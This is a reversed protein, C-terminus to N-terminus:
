LEGLQNAAKLQRRKFLIYSKRRAFAFFYDKQSLLIRAPFSADTRKIDSEYQRLKSQAFLISLLYVCIRKRIIGTLPALYPVERRQDRENVPELIHPLDCLFFLFRRKVGKNTLATLSLVSTKVPFTQHFGM